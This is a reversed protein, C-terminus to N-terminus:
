LRTALEQMLADQRKRSGAFLVLLKGELVTGWNVLIVGEGAQM